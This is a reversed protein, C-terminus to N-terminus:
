PFSKTLGFCLLGPLSEITARWRTTLAQMDHPSPAIAQAPAIHPTVQPTVFTSFWEGVSARGPSDLSGALHYSHM